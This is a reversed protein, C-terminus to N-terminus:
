TETKRIIISVGDMTTLAVFLWQSIDLIFGQLLDGGVEIEVLKEQISVPLRRELESLGIENDATLTQRIYDCLCSVAVGRRDLCSTPPLIALPTTIDDRKSVAEDFRCKKVAIESDDVRTKRPSGISCAVDDAPEHIQTVSQHEEQSVFEMQALSRKGSHETLSAPLNTRNLPASKITTATSSVSVTTDAYSVVSSSIVKFAKRHGAITIGLSDLDQNTLSECSEISTYGADQFNPLYQGLSHQNLWNGVHFDM